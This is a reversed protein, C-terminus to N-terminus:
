IRKFSYGGWLVILRPDQEDAYIIKDGKKLRKGRISNALINRLLNKM